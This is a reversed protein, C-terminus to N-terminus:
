NPDYLFDKWLVYVMQLIYGRIESYSLIQM